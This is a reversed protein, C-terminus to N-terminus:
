APPRGVVWVHDSIVYVDFFRLPQRRSALWNRLTRPGLDFSRGHWRCVLRDAALVADTLPLGAHPCRNEFAAFGRRTRVVLVDSGAVEARVRGLAHVSEVSGVDVAGAPPVAPPDDGCRMTVIPRMRTRPSINFLGSIARPCRRWDQSMLTVV